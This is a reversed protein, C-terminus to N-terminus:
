FMHRYEFLAVISLWTVNLLFTAAVILINIDAQM